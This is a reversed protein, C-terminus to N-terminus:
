AGDKPSSAFHGTFFAGSQTVQKGGVNFTM